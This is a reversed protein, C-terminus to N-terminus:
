IDAKVMWNQIQMSISCLKSPELDCKALDQRIVITEVLLDVFTNERKQLDFAEIFSVKRERAQNYRETQNSQDVLEVVGSVTVRQPRQLNARRQEIRDHEDRQEYCQAIQKEEEFEVRFQLWEFFLASQYHFGALVFAGAFCEGLRDTHGDQQVNM